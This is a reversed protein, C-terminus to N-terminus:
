IGKSVRDEVIVVGEIRYGGDPQRRLQYFAKWGRGDQGTTLVEQVVANGNESVQARGFAYSSPKYVPAYHKRVMDLFATEDPYRARIGPAAFSYATAGDDRLFADIQREIVLRAVKLADEDAHAFSAAALMCVLPVVPVIARM